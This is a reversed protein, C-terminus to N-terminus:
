FLPCPHDKLSRKKRQIRSHEPFAVPIAMQQVENRRLSHCLLVPSTKKIEFDSYWFSIHRESIKAIRTSLKWMTIRGHFMYIFQTTLRHEAKNHFPTVHTIEYMQFEM